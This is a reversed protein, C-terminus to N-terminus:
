TTGRAANRAARIARQERWHREYGAMATDGSQAIVRLGDIFRAEGGDKPAAFGGLTYGSELYWSYEIWSGFWLHLNGEGDIAIMGVIEAITPIAAVETGGKYRNYKEDDSEQYGYRAAHISSQYGSTDVPAIEKAMTIADICVAALARAAIAQEQRELDDDWTFTMDCQALFISM